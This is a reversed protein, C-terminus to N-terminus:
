RIGIQPLHVGPHKPAGALEHAFAALPIVREFKVADIVPQVIKAGHIQAREIEINQLVAEVRERRIIAAAAGRLGGDIADGASQQM